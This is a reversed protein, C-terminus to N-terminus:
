GASVLGHRRRGLAEDDGVVALQVVELIQTLLQLAEPMTEAAVGVGLHQQGRHVLPADALRDRAEVAHEGESEPVTLMSAQMEDAVAHALLREIVAPRTTASTGSPANRDPPMSEEVTTAIICACDDRGTFVKLM